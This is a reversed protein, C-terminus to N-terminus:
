SRRVVTLGLRALHGPIARVPERDSERVDDSLADWPVLHPSTRRVADRPGPAYTWGELLRDASWRAHELVALAEVEEPRFAFPAGVADTLPAVDCGIAALKV